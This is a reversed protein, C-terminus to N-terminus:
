GEEGELAAVFARARKEPTAHILAWHQEWWFHNMWDEAGNPLTLPELAEFYAEQLDHLAIWEEAMYMASISDTFAACKREHAVDTAFSHRDIFGRYGCECCWWEAGDDELLDHNDSGPCRVDLGMAHFIITNLDAKDDM